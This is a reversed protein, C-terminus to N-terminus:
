PPRDATAAKRLAVMKVVAAMAARAAVAGTVPLQFPAPRTAAMLRGAMAALAALAATAVLRVEALAAM